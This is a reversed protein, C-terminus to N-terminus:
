DSPQEKTVFDSGPHAGPWLQAQNHRATPGRPREGEAFRRAQCNEREIDTFASELETQDPRDAELFYLCHPRESEGKM